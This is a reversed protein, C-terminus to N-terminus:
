GNTHRITHFLKGLPYGLNGFGSWYTSFMRTFDTSGLMMTVQYRYFTMELMLNVNQTCINMYLSDEFLVSRPRTLVAELLISNSEV